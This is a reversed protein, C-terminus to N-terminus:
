RRRARVYRMPHALWYFNVDYGWVRAALRESTPPRWDYPMGAAHGQPEIPRKGDDPTGVMVM